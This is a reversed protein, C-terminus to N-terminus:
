VQFSAEPEFSGLPSFSEFVPWIVPVGFAAPVVVIATWTTSVLVLVFGLVWFTTVAVKVM